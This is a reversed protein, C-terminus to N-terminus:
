SRYRRDAYKFLQAPRHAGVRVERTPKVLGDRLVKARFNRKDLAAGLIAEHVEQLDTLTFREPLLQFGLPAHDLRARLREVALRVIGAHDFAVAVEAGGAEPFLAFNGDRQEKVAFWGTEVADTGARPSLRAASVLAYHAISVIWERPDRQPDTFTFLQELYLDSVGAEDQLERRAAQEATEGRTLFGGPLAWSGKFPHLRRRILLLRLQRDVVTFLVVDVTVAPRDFGAFRAQYRQLYEAESGQTEEEETLWPSKM